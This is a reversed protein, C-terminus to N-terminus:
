GAPEIVLRNGEPTVLFGTVTILGDGDAVATGSAIASGDLAENRWAYSGGPTVAFRQVRRPTIDVTQPGELSRVVMAWRGPEDTPPGAFAYWSASWELSLNIGGPGSPPVGVSGSANAFAPITEDRRFAMAGFGGVPGQPLDVWTHEVPDLRAAFARSGAYFRAYTPRGVTAWDIVTDYTGHSIWIYAMEDGRRAALQASLNQWDWVGTGNYRALHGALPGRIEVPLNLSLPGWRAQLEGVWRRSAAFNTMPQGAYAAAFVNPYREALMLAGTGGMSHGYVYVRQPDLAGLTPNSLVEAVTRLLREETYNVIPGRTVGRGAQRYDHGASFGFYWSASPDDAIVHVACFYPSTAWVDYRTGYGGLSLVVPLVDWVPGHCQQETPLGVWYNYAYQQYHAALPSGAVGALGLWNNGARPADFTVNYTAYDMFHTYVRSRGDSSQWVLVPQPTAVAEGVPGAVMMAGPNEVGNVVPVVAYYFEGGEHATWVLLGTGDALEPGLDSIIYNRQGPYPANQWPQAVRARETWYIGSGQPVEAILAEPTLGGEPPTPQRYIRYTIAGSGAVEPWTLFTQGARHFAVAGGQWAVPQAAVGDAGQGGSGAGGPLALLLCLALGVVGAWWAKGLLRVSGM